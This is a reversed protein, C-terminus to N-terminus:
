SIKVHSSNLRTSKRDALVHAPQEEAKQLLLKRGRVVRDVHDVPAEFLRKEVVVLRRRRAISAGWCRQGASPRLPSEIFPEGACFIPLADHLSLTSIEPP